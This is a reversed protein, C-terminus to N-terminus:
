ETSGLREKDYIQIEEDTAMKKRVLYNCNKNKILQKMPIQVLSIHSKTETPLYNKSKIQLPQQHRGEYVEPNFLPKTGLYCCTDKLILLKKQDKQLFGEWKM